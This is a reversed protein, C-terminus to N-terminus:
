PELRALALRRRAPGRRVCAALSCQRERAGAVNLRRARVGPRGPTMGQQLFVPWSGGPRHSRAAPWPALHRPSPRTAVPEAAPLDLMDVMTLGTGLLLLSADPAIRDLVGSQWPDTIIRDSAPANFPLRPALNGTALVWAQGGAFVSGDAILIRRPGQAIGIAEDHIHRINGASIAEALREEMYDGFAQRPVFADALVGKSEDLAKV